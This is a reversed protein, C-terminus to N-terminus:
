PEKAPRSEKQAAELCPAVGTCKGPLWYVSLTAFSAVPPDRHGLKDLVYAAASLYVQGSVVLGTSERLVLYVSHDVGALKPVGELHVTPSGYTVQDEATHGEVLKFYPFDVKTQQRYYIVGDTGVAADGPKMVSALYETVKDYPESVPGGRASNAASIISPGFLVVVAASAIIASLFPANGLGFAHRRFLANGLESLKRVLFLTGYGALLCVAFSPAVLSREIFVPRSQSVVFLVLPFLAFLM